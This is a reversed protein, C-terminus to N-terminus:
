IITMIEELSKRKFDPVTANDDPYGVPLLLFPKENQPRGCLERLFNMPHPTHTLTVLGANQIASILMGCSIGVSESQYYNGKKKGDEGLTYMIKFVVIVWPAKTIHPKEWTTGIEKLDNKWIESMRSEEIEHGYNIKEEQEVADRLMQKKTPDRIVVFKWPQKHAGSPSTGATLIINEIVEQPVDKTSFDRISRRGNLLTYFEKSRKLTEDESFKTHKFPIHLEKAYNRRSCSQLLKKLSM